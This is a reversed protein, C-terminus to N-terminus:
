NVKAVIELWKSPEGYLNGTKVESSIISFKTSTVIEEWKEKSLIIKGTTFNDDILKVSFVLYEKTIRNIENFINYLDDKKYYHLGLRSYTLNFSKNDYPFKNLTDHKICHLGNRIANSVYDDNIDTCNVRYGRDKLHLADSGNGCAIELIKSGPKVLSEIKSLMESDVNGRINLLPSKNNTFSKFNLIKMDYINFVNVM